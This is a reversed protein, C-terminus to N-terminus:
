KIKGDNINHAAIGRTQQGRGFLNNFKDDKSTAFRWDTCTECGALIDVVYDGM